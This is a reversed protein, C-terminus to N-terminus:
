APGRPRQAGAPSVAQHAGLRGARPWRRPRPRPPRTLSTALRHRELTAVEAEMESVRARLTVLEARLSDIRHGAARAEAEAQVRDGAEESLLRRRAELTTPAPAATATRPAAGTYVDLETIPDQLESKDIMAPNEKRNFMM